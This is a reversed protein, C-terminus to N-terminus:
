SGSIEIIKDNSGNATCLYVKGGPSSCVSRIRGFQNNFHEISSVITKKNADLKLQILRSGKLMALLMSNKFQPIEEGQYYHLGSPALTPTWNKLPEVVNNLNCFSSENSENCFGRVNPWGYNKGKQILNVEDDSDPGHESSFLQGDIWALGQPNRHGFSWVPNNPYPNDNPITGDLNLRLVKGALNNLQQPTSTDSADGTSIYLKGEAILLRCGNHISSAPIQDIITFPNILQGNSYTYRVVKGRYTSGYNYAVFVHPSTSFDPHITMGLLGGEGNVRVESITLVVNQQGTQPNLRSIKGGKETFWLHQDPGYVIEWPNSLGSVLTKTSLNVEAPSDPQIVEDKKDKCALIACAMLALIWLKKM